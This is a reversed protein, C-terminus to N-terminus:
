YHGLFFFFFIEFVDECCVNRIIHKNFIASGAAGGEWGWATWLEASDEFSATSVWQAGVCESNPVSQM